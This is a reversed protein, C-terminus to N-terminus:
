MFGLAKRSTISYQEDLFYAMAAILIRAAEEPSYKLDMLGQARSTIVGDIADVCSAYASGEHSPQNEHIYKLKERVPPEDAFGKKELQDILVANFYGDGYQTQLQGFRRGFMMGTREVENPETRARVGLKVLEADLEPDWDVEDPSSISNGHEDLFCVYLKAPAFMRGQRRRYFECVASQAQGSKLLHSWYRAEPHLDAEKGAESKEFYHGLNSM